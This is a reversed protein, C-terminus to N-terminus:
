YGHKSTDWVRATHDREMGALELIESTFINLYAELHNLNVVNESFDPIQLHFSIKAYVKEEKGFAPTANWCIATM